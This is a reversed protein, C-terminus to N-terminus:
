HLQIDEMAVQHLLKQFDSKGWESRGEETWDCMLHQWVGADTGLGWSPVLASSVSLISDGFKLFEHHEWM